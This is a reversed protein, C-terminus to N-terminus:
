LVEKSKYEIGKTIFLMRNAKKIIQQVQKSNKQSEDILVGLDRQVPSGQLREGDLYYIAKGYKRDFHMVECKDVKFEMQWMKAWEGLRDIDMQLTRIEENCSLTGDIKTDDAYKAFSGELGTDLDNIYITFLLYGLVSGHPVGSTVEPWGSCFGNIGIRQRTWCGTV